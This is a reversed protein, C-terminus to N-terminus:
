NRDGIHPRLAEPRGGIHPIPAEAERICPRLADPDGIHATYNPIRRHTRQGGRAGLRGWGSADAM